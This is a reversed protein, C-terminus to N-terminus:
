LFKRQITEFLNKYWKEQLKSKESINKEIGKIVDGVTEMCYLDKVGFVIDFDEEIEMYFAALDIADLHLDKELSTNETVNVVSTGYVKRLAKQIVELM